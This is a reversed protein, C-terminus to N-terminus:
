PLFSSWNPFVHTLYVPYRAAALAVPILGLFALFLPARATKWLAHGFSGGAHVAAERAHLLPVMASVVTYIMAGVISLFIYGAAGTSAEGVIAASASLVSIVVYPVTLRTPLRELGGVSKPTVKFTVPRPRLSQMIAAGIGRAIYPWRSLTYLWNEWSLIPASNPRLLGRRRLLVTLLVLWVSISWWHLLFTLYNVDIWPRGTVAAVPALALGATTTLVLLAYYSLAYIFRLRLRWSLRTLNRPVLGLLVTTLSRSWQFEQVLMASFTTPGDGHALANIAFSGHWGASNLLFSTSFDEALEPGIGGVDRLARTRVAYHSGICLPGWGDSHGLQFPGHFTAEKYLRGRASWSEDANADCVSPAAVYGIAPDSFPRVMEALYSRSPRHDCDLQAVVDYYRYGWYDYFYALNGEKCKTRRPWTERHYDEVGNRSALMVGSSNCWDIIEASPREDCLWVDYPVPFDQGLMALLTSKAVDWPESPARTVVFATRLLPVSVSPSVNKLRNIGVVFFIPYGSVYLLVVSNAVLGFVGLRHQPELWWAWFVTLCAAWCLSLVAVFVRTPPSLVYAFTSKRLKRRRADSALVPGIPLVKEVMGGSIRRIDVVARALATDVEGVRALQRYRGALDAAEPDSLWAEPGEARAAALDNLAWAASRRPPPPAAPAQAPLRSRTVPSGSGPRSRTVTVGRAPRRTSSASTSPRPGPTPRSGLVRGTASPAGHQTAPLPGSHHM